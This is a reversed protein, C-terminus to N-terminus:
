QGGVGERVTGTYHEELAIRLRARGRHLLVRQNAASISMVACVEDASLGDVDRLGVVLRQREPLEEFASSLSSRLEATMLADSPGSNWPGPAESDVWHGAWETGPGRFRAAEVTPGGQEPFASSWPVTRAERAGTTKARNELIRFVWTRLSSRGEFKDLGAVVALWTEQVLEEASALTSVRSRAVRLMAPSWEDVIEAFAEEDGARLRGVLRGDPSQAWSVAPETPHGSQTDM